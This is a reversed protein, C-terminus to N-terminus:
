IRKINKGGYTPCQSHCNPCLFRLNELRNDNNIGNIHDLQLSLEKGCWRGANACEQCKYEKLKEKIIRDKLCRRQFDSNVVFIEDNTRYRSLTANKTKSKLWEKHNSDFVSMDINEEVIRARLTRHNGNYPSLGLKNLVEVITSSENITQQFLYKDIKWVISTKIRKTKGM